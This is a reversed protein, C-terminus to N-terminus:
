QGEYRYSVVVKLEDYRKNDSLRFMVSISIAIGALKTARLKSRTRWTCYDTKPQLGAIVQQNVVWASTERV